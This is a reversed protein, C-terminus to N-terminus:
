KKLLIDMSIKTKEMNKFPYNSTTKAISNLSVAYSPISQNIYILSNV